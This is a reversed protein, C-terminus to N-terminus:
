KRPVKRWHVGTGDPFTFAKPNRKYTGGLVDAWEPARRPLVHHNRRLYRHCVCYDFPAAHPPAAGPLAFVDDDM